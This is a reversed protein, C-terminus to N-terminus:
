FFDILFNKVCLQINEKKNRKSKRKILMKKVKKTRKIKRKKMKTMKKRKKSLIQRQIAQKKMKIIKKIMYKKEKAFKPDIYDPIIPRKVTHGLIEALKKLEKEKEMQIEMRELKLAMMQDEIKERAGACGM